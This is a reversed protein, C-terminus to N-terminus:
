VKDVDPPVVGWTIAGVENVIRFVNGIGDHSVVIRYGSCTNLASFADEPDDFGEWAKELGEREELDVEAEEVFVDKKFARELFSCFEEREEEAFQFEEVTAPTEYDDFSGFNSFTKGMSVNKSETVLERYTAM